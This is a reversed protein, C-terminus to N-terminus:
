PSAAARDVTHLSADAAHRSRSRPAASSGAPATSCWTRDQGAPPRACGRPGTPSPTTSSWTPAWRASSGSSTGAAPRPSSEGAPQTCSNCSCSASVAARPWSSSGSARGFGPTTSWVSRRPATTCSRLRTQLDLGDPVAVIADAAVVAREVYGGEGGRGGTHAVVRRGIWDPDVGHGVSSVLGAVGNGPVYPPQVTFHERGWGRRIQTDVFLTDAVAADVVVQGPGAVPDFTTTTALVEPGGFQTALLQRMEQGGRKILSLRRRPRIGVRPVHAGANRHGTGRDVHGIGAGRRLAGM